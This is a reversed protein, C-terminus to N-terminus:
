KNRILSGTYFFVFFSFVILVVSLLIIFTKQKKSRKDLISIINERKDKYYYWMMAFLIVWISFMIIPHVPYEEGEELSYTNYIYLKILGDIYFSELLGIFAACYWHPSDYQQVKIIKTYFLHLTYYLYDILVM